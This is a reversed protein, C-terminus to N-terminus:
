TRAGQDWIALESMGDAVFVERPLALVLMARTKKRTLVLTVSMACDM